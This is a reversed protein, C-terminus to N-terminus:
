SREAHHISVMHTEDSVVVVFTPSQASFSRQGLKV